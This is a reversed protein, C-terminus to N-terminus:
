AAPQTALLPILLRQGFASATGLLWACWRISCRNPSAPSAPSCSLLRPPPQQRNATPPQRIFAGGIHLCAVMSSNMRREATGESVDAIWRWLGSEVCRPMPMARQCQSCRGTEVLWALRAIMGRHWLPTASRRRQITQTFSFFATARHLRLQLGCGRKGWIRTGVQSDEGPAPQSRM